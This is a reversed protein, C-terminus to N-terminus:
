AEKEWEWGAHTNSGYWTLEWLTYFGPDAPATCHTVGGVYGNWVTEGAVVHRHIAYFKVKEM